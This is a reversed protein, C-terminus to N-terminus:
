DLFAGMPSKGPQLAKGGLDKDAAPLWYADQELVKVNIGKNLYPSTSKLKFNKINEMGIQINSPNVIFPEELFPSPDPINSAQGYGIYVNNKFLATTNKSEIFLKGKGAKNYFINNYFRSTELAENVVVGDLGEPVIVTNNHFIGSGRPAVWIPFYFVHKKGIQGDNVSVNYRVIADNASGTMLLFGGENGHSYNYQVITRYADLDADFAQGDMSGRTNYVENYEFLAEDTSRCWLAVGAKVLEEPGNHNEWAINHSIIPKHAGRIIAGDGTCHHIKNKRVVLNTIPRKGQVSNLQITNAQNMMTTYIGVRNIHGIENGEILIDDFKTEEGGIVGIGGTNKGKTLMSYDGMVDHVYCNTIHFHRRLGPQLCKVLIGIRNGIETAKNSVEIGNVVWYDVEELLIVQDVKGNGMIHPMTGKGYATLVIPKGVSGSGKLVLRSEWSSEKKLFISDGPQYTRLNVNYLTKWPTKESFGNNKDDGSQSDVYYKGSPSNKLPDQKDTHAPKSCAMTLCMSLIITCIPIKIRLM